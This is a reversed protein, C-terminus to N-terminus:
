PMVVYTHGSKVVNVARGTMHTEIFTAMRVVALYFKRGFQTCALRVEMEEECVSASAEFVRQLVAGSISSPV